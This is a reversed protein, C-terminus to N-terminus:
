HGSLYVQRSREKKCILVPAGQRESRKALYLWSRLHDAPGLPRLAYERETPAAPILAPKGSGKRGSSAMPRSWLVHGLCVDCQAARPFRRPM